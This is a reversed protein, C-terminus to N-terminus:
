RNETSKTQNENIEWLNGNIGQQNENMEVLLLSKIYLSEISLPSIKLTENVLKLAQDFPICTILDGATGGELKANMSGAYQVPITTQFIVEIDPYKANFAPIIANNWADADDNRWSEIVLKGAYATNFIFLSSISILTISIFKRM